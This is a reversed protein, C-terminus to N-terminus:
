LKLQISQLVDLAEDGYREKFQRQARVQETEITHGNALWEDVALQDASKRAQHLPPPMDRVVITRDPLTRQLDLVALSLSQLEAADPHSELAELVRTLVVRPSLTRATM